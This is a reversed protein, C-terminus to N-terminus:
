GPFFTGAFVIGDWAEDRGAPDGGGAGRWGGQGDGYGTSGLAVSYFLRLSCFPLSTASVLLDRGVRSSSALRTTFCCFVLCWAVRPWSFDSEGCGLGCAHNGAGICLPSGRRSSADILSKLPLMPHWTAEAMSSAKNSGFSIASIFFM